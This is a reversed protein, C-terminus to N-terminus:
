GRLFLEAQVWEAVFNWMYECLLFSWLCKTYLSWLHECLWSYEGLMLPGVTSGLGLSILFLASATGSKEPGAIDVFMPLSLPVFIGGFISFLSSYLCWIWKTDTFSVPLGLGAAVFGFVAVLVPKNLYFKTCLYGVVPRTVMESLSGISLLLAADAKTFGIEEFYAPWIGLQCYFCITNLFTAGILLLVPIKKLLHKYEKLHDMFISRKSYEKLGFSEERPEVMQADREVTWVTTQLRRHVANPQNISNFAKQKKTDQPVIIPRLVAAISVSQMWLGAYILMSGRVTYKEISWTM